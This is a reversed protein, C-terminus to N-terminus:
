RICYFSCDNHGDPGYTRKDKTQQTVSLKLFWQHPASFLHPLKDPLCIPLITLFFYKASFIKALFIKALYIKTWFIKKLNQNQGLKNKVYKKSHPSFSGVLGMFTQSKFRICYFLCYTHADPGYTRENTGGGWSWILPLLLHSNHLPHITFDREGGWFFIKPPFIKPMFIKLLFIKVLFIKTM